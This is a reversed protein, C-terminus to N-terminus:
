ALPQPKQAAKKRAAVIKWFRGIAAAMSDDIDIAGHSAVELQLMARSILFPKDLPAYNSVWELWRFKYERLSESNRAIEKQTRPLNKLFKRTVKLHGLWYTKNRWIPKQQPEDHALLQRIKSCNDKDRLKWNIAKWTFRKLIKPAIASDSLIIKSLDMGSVDCILFNLFPERNFQINQRLATMIMSRTVHPYGCAASFSCHPERQLNQFIRDIAHLRQAHEASLGVFIRHWLTKGDVVQASTNLALYCFKAFNVALKHTESNFLNTPLPSLQSVDVPKANQKPSVEILTAGHKHCVFVYPMAHSRRWYPSIGAAKDESACIPCYRLMQRGSPILSRGSATESALRRCHFNYAAVTLFPRYAPLITHAQVLEQPQLALYEPARKCFRGFTGSFGISLPSVPRGYLMKNFANYPWALRRYLRGLVSYWLEDPYTEIYFPLRERGPSIAFVETM